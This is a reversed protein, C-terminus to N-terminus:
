GYEAVWCLAMHGTLKDSANVSAGSTLLFQVVSVHGHMSAIIFTMRGWGDTCELIEKKQSHNLLTEAIKLYGRTCAMLLASKGYSNDVAHADV